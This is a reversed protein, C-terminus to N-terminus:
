SIFCDPIILIWNESCSHTCVQTMMKLEKLDALIIDGEFAGAMEIPDNEVGSPAYDNVTPYYFFIVIKYSMPECLSESMLSRDVNLFM